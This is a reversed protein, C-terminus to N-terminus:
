PRAPALGPPASAGNRVVERTIQGIKSNVRLNGAGEYLAKLYGRDFGTMAAPPAATGPDFLTLITDGGTAGKPRVTALTRMAAYDAIQNLSRGIVAKRDILIISALIDRRTPLVARSAIPVSLYSIGNSDVFARDGDRSRIESSTWVHAPGPEDIIARIESLELGAFLWPKKRLLLKLAAHGDDVVMLLINARCGDGALPVGAAVADDALRAGLAELMPRPLGTTGFCVPDTFRALPEDWGVAPTIARALARVTAANPVTRGTVVVTDGAQPAVPAPAAAPAPAPASPPATVPPAQQAISPTTCGALAAAILRGSMRGM